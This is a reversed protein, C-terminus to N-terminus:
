EKTGGVAMSSNTGDARAASMTTPLEGMEEGEPAPGKSAAEQAKAGQGSLGRSTVTLPARTVLWSGEEGKSTSDEGASSSASAAALVELRGEGKADGIVLMCEAKNLSNGDGMAQTSANHAM